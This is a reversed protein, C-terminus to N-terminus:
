TTPLSLTMKVSHEAVLLNKAPAGANWGLQKRAIGGALLLRGLRIATDTEYHFV